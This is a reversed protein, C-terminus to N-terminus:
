PTLGAEVKEKCRNYGKNAVGMFTIQMGSIFLLFLILVVIKWIVKKM